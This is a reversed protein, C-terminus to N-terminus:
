NSLALNKAIANVSLMSGAGARNKEGDRVPGPNKGARHILYAGACLEAHRGQGTTMPLARSDSTTKFVSSSSTANFIAM